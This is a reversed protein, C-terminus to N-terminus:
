TSSASLTVCGSLNWNPACTHANSTNTLPSAPDNIIPNSPNDFGVSVILRGSISVTQKPQQAPSHSPTSLSPGRSFETSADEYRGNEVVELGALDELDSLDMERPTRM